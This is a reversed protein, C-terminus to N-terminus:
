PMLAVNEHFRVKLKDAQHSPPKRRPEKIAKVEAMTMGGFNM